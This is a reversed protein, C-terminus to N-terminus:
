KLRTAGLDQGLLLKHMNLWTNFMAANRSVVAVRRFTTARKEDNTSQVCIFGIISFTEDSEPM